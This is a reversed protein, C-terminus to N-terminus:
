GLNQPQCKLKCERNMKKANLMWSENIDCELKWKRYEVKKMLCCDLKRIRDELETSHVSMKEDLM